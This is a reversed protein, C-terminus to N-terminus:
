SDLADVKKKLQSLEAKLKAIEADKADPSQAGGAQAGPRMGTFARMTNQFIAMNQRTMEELMPMMNAGPQGGMWAQRLKDQNKSFTEMANTLYSPVMKEVGKGYLSILQRLFSPPLMTEETAEKDLIIQAMVTHTLDEGSKADVVQIEEGARIIEALDDLTVYSSTATNYLRRNAYKKVLIPDGEARRTRGM